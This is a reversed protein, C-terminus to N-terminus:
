KNGTEVGVALVKSVDPQFETRKIGKQLEKLLQQLDLGSREIELVAAM